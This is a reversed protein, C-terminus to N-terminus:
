AEKHTKWLIPCGGMFFIHGCISKSKDISINRMNTPSPKSADQPGWNADCFTTLSPHSSPALPDSDSLPFHIYSELSSNPKSSFHLGLDMTSLIYKGVHKVADLHGPSPCHMHSSLLSFITALDPRTCMQLWNIMGLWSQMKATLPARSELSMDLHPITDVPLGSRFPTMQPCKNAMSLGMEEVITAAYGEQYIRCTVSGDSSTHWDFKMGLYWKADSLFEVKLKQSLATEFYHEVEDDLSFCLFDDVYIAL